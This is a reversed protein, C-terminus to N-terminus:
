RVRVASWGNSPDYSSCVQFCAGTAIFPEGASASCRSISGSGPESCVRLRRASSQARALWPPAGWCAYMEMPSAFVDGYFTAEYIYHSDREQESVELGPGRLSISVSEGFANVHSLLCASLIRREAPSLGRHVWDRALGLSGPFAHAQGNVAVTMVQEPDLACRVLYRLLERGSATNEIGQSSATDLELENISMANISMANISMANISMANISMANISMANESLEALQVVGIEDDISACGSLIMVLTLMAITSKPM